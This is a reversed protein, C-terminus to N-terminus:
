ERQAQSLSSQVVARPAQHRARSEIRDFCASLRAKALFQQRRFESPTHERPSSTLLYAWYVSAMGIPSQVGLPRFRGIIRRFARKEGFRRVEDM